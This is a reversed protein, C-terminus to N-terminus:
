EGGKEGLMTFYYYNLDSRPVRTISLIGAEVLKSLEEKARGYSFQPNEPVNKKRYDTWVCEIWDIETAPKGSEIMRQFFVRDNEKKIHYIEAGIYDFRQRTVWLMPNTRWLDSTCLSLLFYKGETTCYLIEEKCLDALLKKYEADEMSTLDDSWQRIEEATLGDEEELVAAVLQGCYSTAAPLNLIAKRRRADNANEWVPLFEKQIMEEQQMYSAAEEKQRILEQCARSEALLTQAGEADQSYIAASNHNMIARLEAVTKDKHWRLFYEKDLM